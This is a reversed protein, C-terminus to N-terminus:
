YVYMQLYDILLNMGKQNLAFIHYCPSSGFAFYILCLNSINWHGLFKGIGRPNRSGPVIKEWKLTWFIWHTLRGKKGTLLLSM